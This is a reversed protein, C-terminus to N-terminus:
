QTATGTAGAVQTTTTSLAESVLTRGTHECWARHRTSWKENQKIFLHPHVLHAVQTTYGLVQLPEAPGYL